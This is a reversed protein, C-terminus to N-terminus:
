GSGAAAAGFAGTVDALYGLGDAAAQLYREAVPAPGAVLRAHLTRVRAAARVSGSRVAALLADAALESAREPAGADLHAEALWGTYLAVPRPQRIGTLAHSLLPVALRPRRLVAFCRGTLAAFEDDTLWYLWPPDDAPHRRGFLREAATIARECGQADGARAAAYAVRQSALARAGASGTHVLEGAGARALALARAPESSIQAANGLLHGVLAPSGAARAARLGLRHAARAARADGADGNVWGALQALEAIAALGAPGPDHVGSTALRLARNVLPGLDAGGMLDDLRRLEATTFVPEAPRRTVKGKRSVRTLAAAQELEGLPVELVVALWRLWFANPVRHEREWRSVEHRTVTATGSAACLLEALRLQTRGRAMRLQVLRAGLSEGGGSGQADFTQSSTAM